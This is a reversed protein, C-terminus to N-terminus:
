RRKRVEMIGTLSGVGFVGGRHIGREKDPESSDTNYGAARGKDFVAPRM